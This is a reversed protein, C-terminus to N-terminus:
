SPHLHNMALVLVIGDKSRGILSSLVAMTMTLSPTKGSSKRGSVIAASHAEDNHKAVNSNSDQKENPHWNEGNANGGRPIDRAASSAKKAAFYSFLNNKQGDFSKSKNFKAM